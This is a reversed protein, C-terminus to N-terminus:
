ETDAVDEDPLSILNERGIRLKDVTGEDNMKSLLQSVKAHSWNTEKVISGQKMRGDNEDLLRMVREEDSLLEAPREEDTPEAPESETPDRPPSEQQESHDDAADSADTESVSPVTERQSLMYVSGGGLGLLLVLLAIGPIGGIAGWPEQGPTTTPEDPSSPTFTVTLDSLTLQKPGEYRIKGNVLRPNGSYIQYDEPPEIVLTQKETLSSLWLGSDTTFVDGLRVQRGSTRTFNTWTFSLRLVGVSGNRAIRGSRSVDLIKMERSTNESARDAITVFTGASFGVDSRGQEYEELLREFAKTENKDQLHFRASVNWHANGGSHLTVYMTTGTHVTENATANSSQDTRNTGTDNTGTGNLSSDTGNAATGNVADTLLTREPVSRESPAASDPPQGVGVGAVASPVLLLSVLLAAYWRM